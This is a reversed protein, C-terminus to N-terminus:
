TLRKPIPPPSPRLVIGGRVPTVDAKPYVLKVKKLAALYSKKFTLDSGKGKYEQGFQERLNKWRLFVHSGNIRHLRDAMMAYIDMALSSGSLENLARMDLPVAHDCLTTYYERSFTIEGPWLNKQTETDSLWAEFKAIPKGDYTIASSATTFGLTMSCASLAMVQKRFTTYAGREGGSKSKYGLVRMFESASNGVDIIPSKERLAKTNLYAMVLRPMPGYPIPQQVFQKGDWIKGAHIYIGANGSTREFETGEVKSRPLGIQCMISHMYTKDKDTPPNDEILLGTNVLQHDRKSMPKTKKVVAPPAPPTAEEADEGKGTVLLSLSNQTANTKKNHQDAYLRAVDAAVEFSAGGKILIDRYAEEDFPLDADQKNPRM